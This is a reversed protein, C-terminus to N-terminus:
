KMILYIGTVLTFLLTMRNFWAESVKRNLWVGLWVGLPILPLFFLSVHVTSSNIIGKSVFFPLKIWNIWTFILVNTGVFLEKPLHQPILYLMMVPGAGHAVASTFGAGLGFPSAILWNPRFSGEIRLLASKVFQFAVFFVAMAGITVNLQRTNFRNILQVGLLVGLVAGPLIFRLNKGDWKRWYHYLSFLDGASLLPLLIGIAERPGFALVCLPMSIMGLSGGFGAKSLGIVLVGVGAMVLYLTDQM